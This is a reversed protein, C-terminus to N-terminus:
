FEISLTVYPGALAFNSINRQFTRAFVGLTADGVPVDDVQSGMDISQLAQLYVQAQYGAGVTIAVQEGWTSFAYSIGINEQLAPVVQMRKQVSTSQNNPSPLGLLALIPSTSVYTTHNQMRGVLLSAQMKGVLFLQRFISYAADIGVQPGAGRFGIPTQITRTINSAADSFYSFLSQQISAFNLGGFFNTSWREGFDICKSLAVSVEDVHFRVEGQAQKYTSADPGIEFFPGIMNQSSVQTLTSTSSRFHEWRLMIHIGTDDIMAKGGIDFGFYYRPHLDFVSWNPSDISLPIAQVAYHLNSASPQLFLVSFYLEFTQHPGSIMERDYLPITNSEQKSSSFGHVDTLLILLAPLVFFICKGNM